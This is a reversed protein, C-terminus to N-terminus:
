ASVQGHGQARDRQSRGTSRAQAGAVLGHGMIHSNSTLGTEEHEVVVGRHLELGHGIGGHETHRQSRGTGRAQAGAM